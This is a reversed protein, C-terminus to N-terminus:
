GDLLCDACRPVIALPSSRVIYLRWSQWKSTPRVLLEILELSEHLGFITELHVVKRTPSALWAHPCSLRELPPAVIMVRERYQSMQGKFDERARCATGCVFAGERHCAVHKPFSSVICLFLKSFRVLPQTRPKRLTQYLSNNFSSLV